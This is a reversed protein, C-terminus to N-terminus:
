LDVQRQNLRSILFVGLFFLATAGLSGVVFVSAVGTGHAIFGGVSPGL